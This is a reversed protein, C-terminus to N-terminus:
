SPEAATATPEPDALGSAHWALGAAAGVAAALILALAMLIVNLPEQRKGSPGFTM